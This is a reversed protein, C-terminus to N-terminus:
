ADEKNGNRDDQKCNAPRYLAAALSVSIDPRYFFLWAAQLDESGTESSNIKEKLAFIIYLIAEIVVM